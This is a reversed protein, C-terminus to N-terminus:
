EPNVAFEAEASTRDITVRMECYAHETMPDDGCSCGGVIETFFIGVDAEISGGGDAVRIITAVINSDDVLGGQSTGRDLPLSGKPLHEIESKLTRTFSETNWASLSNTFKPM